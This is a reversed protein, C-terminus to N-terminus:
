GTIGFCRARAIRRMMLVLLMGSLGLVATSPEPVIAVNAVSATTTAPPNLANIIDLLDLPSVM